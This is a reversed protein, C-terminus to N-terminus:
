MVRQFPPFRRLLWVIALSIALVMTFFIGMPPETVEAGARALSLRIMDMVWPHIGYIGLSCASLMLLIAAVPKPVKSVHQFSLFIGASSVIVLASNNYFFTENPSGASKSYSQTILAIAASGALYIAFGLWRYLPVPEGRRRLLAGLVLYGGFDLISYGTAPFSSGYVPTVFASVLPLLAVLLFWTGVLMWKAPADADRFWPSIVPTIISLALIAYFYWLHYMVPGKLIALLWNGPSVGRYSAWAAYILSWFVLPLMIRVLRKTYFYGFSDSRPLFIAGSTMLFIPVAVRTLSDVVNVLPWGHEFTGFHAAAVHQLIVLCCAVAKAISLSDISDGPSSTITGAM